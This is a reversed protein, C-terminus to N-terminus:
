ATAETEKEKKTFFDKRQHYYGLIFLGQQKVNHIHPANSLPGYIEQLLRDFHEKRKFHLHRLHHRSLKSLRPFVAGPTTSAASFYTDGITKNLPDTSKNQAQHGEEQIKELVAFLRGHLYAPNTNKLDLMIPITLDHNRTLIAKIIAAKLYPVKVPNSGCEMRARRIVSGLMGEPYRTGQLIARMLSGVQLDSIDDGSRATERLLEWFAPFVPDARRKGVPQEFQRVIALHDQHKKLHRVLEAVSSEYFFRVSLRAANPALGLIFFRTADPDAGLEESTLQGRQIGELFTQLKKRVMEDQAEEPANSGGISLEPLIDELLCPRDTWFVCTTGAIQIRHRRSQPGNLLSNLATGYRDAAVESVPANYGQTKGYSEYVSDNFSVLSAGAAQSGPVGKIKPHLRAIIAEEGSILCQGVVADKDKRAGAQEKEWFALVLPHQHVAGLSGEVRFYGFGPGVDKLLPHQDLHEPTWQELFACVAQYDACDKLAERRALHTDRFAEFRVQAFGAPKDEPQRGLLYTQNDWLFCPNIGSGSPKAEGPVILQPTYLKGKENPIRAEKFDKLCGHRDLLVYFAMKQPSFGPQSLAYSSDGALRPYLEYLAQLIM